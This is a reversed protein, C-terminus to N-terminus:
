SNTASALMLQFSLKKSGTCHQSFSSIAANPKIVVLAVIILEFNCAADELRYGDSQFESSQKQTAEM